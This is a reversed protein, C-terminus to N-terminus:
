SKKNVKDGHSFLFFEMRKVAEAKEKEDVTNYRDFMERTSHGTIDMTVTDHTGAKRMYTNFTHRLDHATIHLNM